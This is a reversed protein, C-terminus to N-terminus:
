PKNENKEPRPLRGAAELRKVFRHLTIRCWDCCFGDRGIDRDPKYPRQCLRCYRKGFLYRM